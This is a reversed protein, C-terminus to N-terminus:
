SKQSIVFIYPCPYGGTYGTQVELNKIEFGASELKQQVEEVSYGYHIVEASYSQRPSFKGGEEFQQFTAFFTSNPKCVRSIEALCFDLDNMFELCGLAIACDFQSDEFVSLGDDLNHCHVAQYLGTEAAAEVMKASIDLGVAQITPNLKALNQVNIGNACGIDVLSLNPQSVINDINQLLWEPASYGTRKISESYNGGTKDYLDQIKDAHNRMLKSRQLFNCIYLLVEDLKERHPVHGCEELMVMRSDGGANQTLFEPFARTGYEDNEGHIALLPCTVNGISAELSWTSFQDSLWVETWADLVWQAKDGHYKALRDVQGPQEFMKQADRIGAATRDEVFAQAAETILAVCDSDRSAIEVSMGGGVSHGLLIYKELGLQQKITPFYSEAEEAVFNPSPIADRASSQGFGLRDYAIVPRSLHTALREPFDRWLAVCGLSDHLLIIPTDYKASKPSWSKTYILGNPLEVHTESIQVNTM